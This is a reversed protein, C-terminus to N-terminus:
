RGMRETAEGISWILHDLGIKNHVPAVKIDLDKIGLTTHSVELTNFFAYGDRIFVRMEGRDYPRSPQWMFARAKGGGLRQIFENSIRRPEKPTDRTKLDVLGKIDRWRAGEGGIVILGDVVGSIYGKIPELSDCLGKLSVGELNFSLIYDRDTGVRAMGKGKGGYIDFRVDYLWLKNDEIRLPSILNTLGFAGWSVRKISIRGETLLDGKILNSGRVIQSLTPGYVLPIDGDVTDLVLRGEVMVLRAGKLGIMATVGYGEGSFVVEAKAGAEGQVQIDKLPLFGQKLGELSLPPVRIDFVGSPKDTDLGTVDGSLSVMPIYPSSFRDVSITLRGDRYTLDAKGGVENFIPSDGKAVTVRKLGLGAKGYIGEKAYSGEFGGLVEGDFTFGSSTIKFSASYRGEKVTLSGDKYALEVEGDIGHFLLNDGKGIMGRKIALRADGYIGEKGQKGRILDPAPPILTYGGDFRGKVEGDMSFGPMAFVKLIEGIKINDIDGSLNVRGEERLWMGKAKIGGGWLSTSAEFSYDGPRIVFGVEEVSLPANVGEGIFRWDRINGKLLGDKYVLDMLEARITAKRIPSGYDLGMRLSNLTAREKTLRISPSDLTVLRLGDQIDKLAMSVSGEWLGGKLSLVMNGEGNLIGKAKLGIALGNNDYIADGKFTVGKLNTELEKLRLWKIGGGRKAPDVGTVLADVKGKVGQLSVGQFKGESATFSISVEGENVGKAKRLLLSVDGRDIGGIEPYSVSLGHSSLRANLSIDEWLLPGELSVDEVGVRGRLKFPLLGALAEPIGLVEGDGRAKMYLGKRIDLVEGKLAIKGLGSVEIGGDEVMLHDTKPDYGMSWSLTTTPLTKNSVELGELSLVGKSSVGDGINFGAKVGLTVDKIDLPEPSKFFREIGKIGKGEVEGHLSWRGPAVDISLAMRWPNGASDQFSFSGRQQYVERSTLPSISGDITLREEVNGIRISAEGNIIQLSDMEYPLLPVGRDGWRDLIDQFNWGKIPDKHIFARPGKVRISAVELRKKFIPLFRPSFRVEQITLFTAKGPEREQIDIDGVIVEWGPGIRVYGITTERGIAKTIAGALLNSAGVRYLYLNVGLLLCLLFVLIVLLGKFLLRSM